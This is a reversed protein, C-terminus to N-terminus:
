RRPAEDDGDDPEREVFVGLRIKKWSPPSKRLLLRMFTLLALLVFFGVFIATITVDKSL